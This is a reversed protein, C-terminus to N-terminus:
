MFLQYNHCDSDCVDTCTCLTSIDNDIDCGAAVAGRQFKSAYKNRAISRYKPPDLRAKVLKAAAKSRKNKVTAVGKKKSVAKKVTNKPRGHMAARAPRVKKGAATTKKKPPM